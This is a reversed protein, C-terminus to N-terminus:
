NQVVNVAGKQRWDIETANTSADFEETELEANNPLRGMMKKAEAKTMTSFMNHGVVFTNAPDENIKIYEADKEAFIAMRFAYEEQTGYSIGYNAVHDMFRTQVGGEVDQTSCTIGAAGLAKCIHTLM